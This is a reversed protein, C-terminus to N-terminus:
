KKTALKTYLAEPYPHGDLYKMTNDDFGFRRQVDARYPIEKGSMERAIKAFPPAIFGRITKANVEMPRKGVVGGAMNGEGVVFTNGTVAIVIGIHDSWGQNDGIGNDQWDYICADGIKPKHADNEVWFGKKKAVEVFREVGVETGTYEAIGALIYVASTTGACYDDTPKLAYSRALPKHSNYTNLIKAHRSDGKRAGIFSEMIEVVNNRLELETM